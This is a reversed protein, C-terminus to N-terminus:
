QWGQVIGEDECPHTKVSRVQTFCLLAAISIAYFSPDTGIFIVTIDISFDFNDKFDGQVM